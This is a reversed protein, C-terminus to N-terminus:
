IAYSALYPILWADSLVETNALAVTSDLSCPGVKTIKGDVIDICIGRELIEKALRKLADTTRGSGLTKDLVITTVVKEVPGM